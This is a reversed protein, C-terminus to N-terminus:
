DIKISKPTYPNNTSSVLQLIIYKGAADSVDMNDTTGKTVSKASQTDASAWSYMYTSASPATATDSIYWYLTGAVSPTYILYKINNIETLQYDFGITSPTTGGGGRSIRVPNYNGGTDVLVFWVYSYDSTINSIKLTRASTTVTTPSGSTMIGTATLNANNSYLYYLTGNVASRFSIEDEFSDGTATTVITPLTTFGDTNYGGGSRQVTVPNYRNNSGDILMFVVYGASSGLVNVNYSAQMNASVPIAGTISTATSYNTAFTASNIFGPNTNSYYFYVSGSVSTTVRINDQTGSTTIYPGYTIGNGLGTGSGIRSVLVPVYRNNSSDILMFAVFNYANAYQYVAGYGTTNVPFTGKVTSSTNGHETMFANSNAPATPSNTYYWYVTGNISSNATLYDQLTNVTVSPTYSFGSGTVSGPDGRKVTIPSYYTTTTGTGTLMFTVYQYGSTTANASVVLGRNSVASNASVSITGKFSNSTANYNTNFANYDNPATPSNTYYYYVYGAYSPTFSVTDNGNLQSSVMVTPTVSFGYSGANTNLRPLIAPAQIKGSTDQIAIVIFTYDNAFGPDATKLNGVPQGATLQTTAGKVSTAANGYGTLFNSADIGTSTKSYYWYVVGNIAPTFSVFDGNNNVTISPSVTFGAGGTGSESRPIVLPPYTNGSNDSLELVIYNLGATNAAATEIRISQTGSMHTLYISSNEGASVKVSNYYASIGYNAAFNSPVQSINTYYYRMSGAAKTSVKLTDIGNYSSWVPAATFGSESYNNVSDSNRTVIIPPYNIANTGSGTTLMVAVYQYQSSAGGNYVTTQNYETGAVVPIGTSTPNKLGSGAATWNALFNESTIAANSTTYYYFVYGAATTTFSLNDYGTAANTNVTPGKSFGSATNDTTSGSRSIVIPTFYKQNTFLAIVVYKYQEAISKSILDLKYQKVPDLSHYGKANSSASNYFSSFTDPTPAASTNTYYFFLIGTQDPTLTVTDKSGTTDIVAKTGKALGDTSVDSGTVVKGGITATLNGSIKYNVPTINSIFRAGRIDVSQLAGSGDVLSGEAFEGVTMNAIRTGSNMYVSAASDLRINDITSDNMLTVGSIHDQASMVVVSNVKTNELELRVTGRLFLTGRINCGSLKVSGTSAGETVYVSGQIDANTITINGSTISANADAADSDKGSSSTRYITGASRYLIALAEARTLTRQPKFEGDEYGKLIGAAVCQLVYERYQSSIAMYDSFTGPAAKNDPSLNLYRALLASAEERTLKGEPDLATGYDLLYGQAAAQQIYPYFWDSSKVDSYNIAITDNLGFTADLMKIFEARKVTNEPKFTGDPYGSLIQKKVLYEINAKAWHSEIDSFPEAALSSVPAFVAVGIVMLVAMLWATVRTRINRKKM